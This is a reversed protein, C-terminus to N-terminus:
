SLTILKIAGLVGNTDGSSKVIYENLNPIQLYGNIASGLKSRVKEILRDHQVLGGGLVIKEPGITMTINNLALAICNAELDWIEESDIQEARRGYHQQMSYGSAIGELCDGHFDCTGKFNDSLAYPIRMHGMELNLIGHVIQKNIVLSGGIGTGLTIYVFSDVDKAAGFYLEGLAACNVDLDFEIPVNFHSDLLAKLAVNTWGEKPANYISGYNESQRNVNLPGFSGVGLAALSGQGDFFNYVAHLTEEVSTTPISHHAILQGDAHGVACITKTGGLEIGGYLKDM